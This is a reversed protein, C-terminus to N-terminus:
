HETFITKVWYQRRDIKTTTHKRRLTTQEQLNTSKTTVTDNHLKAFTNLQKEIHATSDAYTKM